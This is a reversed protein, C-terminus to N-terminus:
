CSWCLASYRTHIHQLLVVILTYLSVVFCYYCYWDVICRFVSVLLHVSSSTDTMRSSKSVGSGQSSHALSQTNRFPWITCLSFQQPQPCNQGKISTLECPYHASTDHQVCRSILSPSSYWIPRMPVTYYCCPREM